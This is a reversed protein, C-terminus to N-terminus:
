LGKGLSSALITLAEIYTSEISDIDYFEQIHILMGEFILIRRPRSM